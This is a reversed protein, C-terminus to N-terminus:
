SQSSTIQGVLYSASLLYQNDRIFILWDVYAKAFMNLVWSVDHLSLGVSFTLIKIRAHLIHLQM